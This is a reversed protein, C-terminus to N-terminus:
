SIGSAYHPLASSKQLIPNYVSASRKSNRTSTELDMSRTNRARLDKKFSDTDGRNYVNDAKYREEIESYKQSQQQQESGLQRHRDELSEYKERLERHQEKALDM